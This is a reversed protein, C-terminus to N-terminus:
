VNSKKDRSGRVYVAPWLSYVYITRRDRRAKSARERNRM